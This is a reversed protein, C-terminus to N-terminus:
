FPIDDYSLKPEVKALLAKLEALNEDDIAAERGEITRTALDYVDEDGIIWHVQNNGLIATVIQNAQDDSFDTFRSLEAVILHTISFSESEGLKTILENIEREIALTIDLDQQKFFVSLQRYFHLVSSKQMSWEDALYPYFRSNDIPSCFDKDGTIFHLDEQAPVNALLAEWNVADGLSGNKGPPNGLEVRRRAKSYLETNTPYSDAVDFLQEVIGDAKLKRANAAVRIEALIERHLRSYEKQAVRMQEYRNSDRCIQPFQLDLNQKKMDAIALAIRADRNRRFEHAVQEPLALRIPGNKIAEVLKQLEQLDDSSFHYFSLLINTDIFVFM